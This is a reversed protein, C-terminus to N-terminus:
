AGRPEKGFARQRSFDRKKPRWGCFAGCVQLWPGHNNGSGAGPPFRPLKAVARRALRIALQDPGHWADTRLSLMSPPQRQIVRMPMMGARRAIGRILMPAVRSRTRGISTPAADQRAALTCWESGAQVREPGKASNKDVQRGSAGQSKITSLSIQGWISGSGHSLHPRHGQDLHV